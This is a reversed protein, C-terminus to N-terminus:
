KSTAIINVFHLLCWFFLVKVYSITEFPIFYGNTKNLQDIYM